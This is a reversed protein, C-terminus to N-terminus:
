LMSIIYFQRELLQKAGYLKNYPPRWVCQVVATTYGTRRGGFVRVTATMCRGSFRICNNM